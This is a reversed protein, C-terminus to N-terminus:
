QKEHTVYITFGSELALRNENELTTRSLRTGSPNKTNTVEVETLDIRNVNFTERVFMKGKVVVDKNETNMELFQELCM